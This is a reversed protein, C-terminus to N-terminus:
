EGVGAKADRKTAPVREALPERGAQRREHRSLSQDIERRHEAESRQGSDREREDGVAPRAEDYRESRHADEKVDCPMASCCSSLHRIAAPPVAPWTSGDSATASASTARPALTAKAPDGSRASARSTGSAPNSSSVNRTEPSGRRGVGASARATPWANRAGRAQLSIRRRRSGSTTRPPPPYTAPGM